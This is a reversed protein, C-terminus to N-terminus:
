EYGQNGSYTLFWNDAHSKVDASVYVKDFCNITDMPVIAHGEETPTPTIEDGIRVWPNDGNKAWVSYVGDVDSGAGASNYLCISRHPDGGIRVAM